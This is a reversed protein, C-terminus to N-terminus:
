PNIGTITLTGDLEAIWIQGEEGLMIGQYNCFMETCDENEVAEYFEDSLQSSFNGSIFDERNECTTTGITIPYSVDDALQEWNKAIILDKVTAAFNEVEDKSLNTCVAYYDANETDTTTVDDHDTSTDNEDSDPQVTDPEDDSAEIDPQRDAENEIDSDPAANSDQAETSDQTETSDQAATIDQTETSDQTATGCGACLVLIFLIVILKKM